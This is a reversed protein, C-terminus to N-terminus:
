PLTRGGSDPRQELYCVQITGVRRALTSIVATQEWPTDRFDVPQWTQDEIRIRVRAELGHGAPERPPAGMGDRYGRLGTAPL